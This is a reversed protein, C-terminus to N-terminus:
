DPLRLVAAFDVPDGQQVGKARDSSVQVAQADRESLDHVRVMVPAGQGAASRVYLLTGIDLAEKSSRAVVIQHPAVSRVFGLEAQGIGRVYPATLLQARLQGLRPRLAEALAWDPVRSAQLEFGGPELAIASVPGAVARREGGLRTGDALVVHHTVLLGLLALAEPRPLPEVFAAALVDDLGYVPPLDDRVYAALPPDNAPLYVHKRSAALGRAVYLTRGEADEGLREVGPPALTGLDLRYPIREVILRHPLDPVPM